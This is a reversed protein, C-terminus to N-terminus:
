PGLCRDGRRRHPSKRGPLAGGVSGVRDSSTALATTRTPNVPSQEYARCRCGMVVACIGASRCSGGAEAIWNLLVRGCLSGLGILGILFADVDASVGKAMALLVLHGFPVFAVIAVLLQALYLLPFHDASPSAAPSQALCRASKPELERRHARSANTRAKRTREMLRSYGVVDAALIAALRREVPQKMAEGLQAMM